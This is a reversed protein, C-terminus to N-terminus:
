NSALAVYINNKTQWLFNYTPDVLERVCVCEFEFEYEFSIVLFFSFLFVFEALICNAKNIPMRVRARVDVDCKM